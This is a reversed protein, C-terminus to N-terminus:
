RLLPLLQRILAPPGAITAASSLQHRHGVTDVVDAGAERAILVGASTDWPKNGLTISADLRGEAVWALDLAATGLMRIRHVRAALRTTAALQAENKHDADEGVAYDGIAVVADRLRATSAVSLRTGSIGPGSTYAGRGEIAHYRHGLFPADIVALVPRGDQLLALSTTCLPLGHAFNSTGDIPDLTWVWGAAPDGSRGEEEGLFAIGPSARALRRRIAREIALDVDSVLERDSKETLTVPRRTRMMTSAEDAAEFAAPLLARLDPSAAPEATM